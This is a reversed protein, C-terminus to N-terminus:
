GVFPSLKLGETFDAGTTILFPPFVTFLNTKTLKHPVCKM